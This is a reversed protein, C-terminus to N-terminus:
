EPAGNTRPRGLVNRFAAFAASISEPSADIDRLDPPWRGLLFCFYDYPLSLADALNDMLAMGPLRQGREIDSLHARTVPHRLRASLRDM